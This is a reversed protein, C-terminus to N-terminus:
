STSTEVPVRQEVLKVWLAPLQSEPGDNAVMEESVELFREKFTDWLEQDKIEERGPRPCFPDNRWFAMVAQEVGSETMSMIRCCDFDLIWVCHRGLVESEIITPDSDTAATTNTPTAKKIIGTTEEKNTNNNSVKPPSQPPAPPALVFEVDNADIHARWYLEALTEAMIGAYLNGDLGLEEIQDAHLPFNRLSFAQFRSQRVRHRRRGLYPRVLCDRDAESSLISSQLAAPCYADILNNRAHEPLPPIRQTILANCATQYQEPFRSLHTSWWAQNDSRIYAHCSPVRIASTSPSLATLITQHMTFDNLLSRGPGGDERKIAQAPQTSDDDDDSIPAAWVTGCFGQGIRRLQPTM